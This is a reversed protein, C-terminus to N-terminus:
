STPDGQTEGEMLVNGDGAAQPGLHAAPHIDAGVHDERQIAHLFGAEAKQMLQLPFQELVQLVEEGHQKQSQCTQLITEFKNIMGRLAATYCKKGRRFYTKYFAVGKATPNLQTRHHTQQIWRSGVADLM